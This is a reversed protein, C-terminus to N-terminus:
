AVGSSLIAGNDAGLPPASDARPEDYADLLIPTRIMRRRGAYPDDIELFM